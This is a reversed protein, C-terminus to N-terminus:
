RRIVLLIIVVAIAIIWASVGVNTQPVLTDIIKEQYQRAHREIIESHDITWLDDLRRIQGDFDSRLNLV